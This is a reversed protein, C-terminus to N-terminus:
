YFWELRLVAVLIRPAGCRKCNHEELDRMKTGEAGLKSKVVSKIVNEFTKASYKSGRWRPQKEGFITTSFRTFVDIADTMSMRLRGLLIAVLRPYQLDSIVWNGAMSRSYHAPKHM